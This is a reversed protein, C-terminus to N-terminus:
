TCDDTTRLQFMVILESCHLLNAARGIKRGRGRGGRGSNDWEDVRFYLPCECSDLASFALSCPLSGFVGSSESQKYKFFM